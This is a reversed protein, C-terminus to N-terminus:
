NRHKVHEKASCRTLRRIRLLVELSYLCIKLDVEPSVTGGIPKHVEPSHLTQHM